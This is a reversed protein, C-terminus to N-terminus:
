QAATRPRPSSRISERASCYTLMAACLVWAVASLPSSPRARMTSSWPLGCRHASAEGSAPLRATTRPSWVRYSARSAMSRARSSVATTVSECPRTMPWSGQRVTIRRVPGLAWSRDVTLEGDGEIAPPRQHGHGRQLLALRHRPRLLSGATGPVAAPGRLHEDGRGQEQSRADGQEKVQAALVQVVDFTARDVALDDRFPQELM